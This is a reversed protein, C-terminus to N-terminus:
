LVHHLPCDWSVAVNPPMASLAQKPSDFAMVAFKVHSYEEEIEEMVQPYVHPGDPRLMGHRKRKRRAIEATRSSIGGRPSQDKIIEHNGIKLNVYIITNNM